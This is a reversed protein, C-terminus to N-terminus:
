IERAIARIPISTEDDTRDGSRREELDMAASLTQMPQIQIAGRAVGVRSKLLGERGGESLSLAIRGDFGGGECSRGLGIM